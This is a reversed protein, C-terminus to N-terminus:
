DMEGAVPAPHEKINPPLDPGMHRPATNFIFRSEDGPRSGGEHVRTILGLELLTSRARRYRKADWRPIVGIAAMPKVAIAFQPHNFHRERLLTWLMLADPTGGNRIVDLEAVGLHVYPAVFGNRGHGHASLASRITKIAETVPLPEAFHSNAVLAYDLTEDLGHEVALELTRRYLANNRGDGARMETWSQKQRKGKDMSPGTVIGTPISGPRVHPLRVLDVLSGESFKYRRGDLDPRQSPPAVVLNLGSGRIDIPMGLFHNCGREGGYQYFLHRGGTPTSAKLPTEGFEKVALDVLAEGETASLAKTDIDVITLNSAPGTIVGINATPWREVWRRITRPSPRRSSYRSYGSEAPHKGDGDARLPIISLGARAYDPASEAFIPADVVAARMQHTSSLQM